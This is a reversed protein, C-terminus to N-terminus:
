LFEYIGVFYKYDEDTIIRKGYGEFFIKVDFKSEFINPKPRIALSVDYRPDGYAGGSWDIIGTIEGNKVLVNDITYDGHILTQNLFSPKDEKLKDLLKISGDVNYHKTIYEAQNLMDDIWQSGFILESPCKTSHIKSLSKGFNFLSEERKIQINEKSLYNRLTEGEIYEMLTWFWNNDEISYYVKPILLESKSLQNLIQVEKTLLTSYREGQSRKIVFYGNNSQIVGVNSTYGQLPFKIEEIEGVINKIGNPIENLRIPEM